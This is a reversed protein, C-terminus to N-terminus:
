LGILEMKKNIINFLRNKIIVLDNNGIYELGNIYIDIDNNNLQQSFLQILYLNLFIIFLFIKYRM